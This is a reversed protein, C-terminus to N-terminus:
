TGFAGDDFGAGTEDFIFLDGAASAPARELGFTTDLITGGALLRHEIQEIFFDDDIGTEDEVVHV